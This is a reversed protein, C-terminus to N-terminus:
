KQIPWQFCLNYGDPDRLYLQKMGYSAIEPPSITLGKQRLETYANDVDPCGFYLTTDHHAAVRNSDPERPRDPKEYQTNLMLNVDGLKLWVWGIDDNGGASQHIKFGLMNVYFTLSRDMDFVELMPCLYQIEM